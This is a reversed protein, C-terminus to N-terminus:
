LEVPLKYTNVLSRLRGSQGKFRLVIVWLIDFGEAEELLIFSNANEAQAIEVSLMKFM